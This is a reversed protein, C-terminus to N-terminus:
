AFLMEVDHHMETRVQVVLPFFRSLWAVLTCVLFIFCAARDAVVTRCDVVFDFRRRAASRGRPAPPQATGCATRPLHSRLHFPTARILVRVV